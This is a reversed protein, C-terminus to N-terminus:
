STTTPYGKRQWRNMGGKLSKVNKFGAEVMVDVAVLSLGGGECITVIEKEKFEQLDLKSILEFVLISMANPIHGKSNFEPATRVDILVPPQDSNIRDFLADVTIETGGRARKFIWRLSTKWYRFMYKVSELIVQKEDSM